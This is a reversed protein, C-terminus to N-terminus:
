LALAVFLFTTITGIAAVAYGEMVEQLTHAKLRLRAWAIAITLVIAITGIERGFAWGLVVSSTFATAVHISVKVLRSCAAAIISTLAYALTAIAVYRAHVWYYLVFFGLIGGIGSLLLMSVRKRYDSIDWDFHGHKVGKWHKLLPFLALSFIALFGALVNSDKAWAIIPLLLAFGYPNFVYSIGVALLDLVSRKM